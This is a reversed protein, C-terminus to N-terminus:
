GCCALGLLRFRCFLHYSIEQQWVAHLIVFAGCIHLAYFQQALIPLLFIISSFCFNLVLLSGLFCNHPSLPYEYYIVAEIFLVYFAVSLVFAANM